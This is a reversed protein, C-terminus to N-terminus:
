AKENLNRRFAAKKFSGDYKAMIQKIRPIYMLAPIVILLFSYVILMVYQAPDTVRSQMWAMSPLTTELWSDIPTIWQAWTVIPFALFSVAFSITIYRTIALLILLLVIFFPVGMPILYALVGSATAVGRGTRHFGFFVPYMHGAIAMLGCALQVIILVLSSPNALQCLITGLYVALAGKGVDCAGVILGATLGVENIVNAAGMNGSGTKRIDIGKFVRGVLYASPISGLVYSIIIAIAAIICTNM